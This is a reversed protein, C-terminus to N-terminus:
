GGEGTALDDQLTPTQWDRWQSLDGAGSLHAKIQGVTEGEHKLFKAINRVLPESYEPKGSACHQQNAVDSIYSVNEEAGLEKYVEAGALVATHAAPAGFQRIHPNDLVLLGRPAIMAVMEHTDVPLQAANLVFPKFDDALWNLGYFNNSTTETRLVDVIRYAPVGGTSTEQPITLAIREDFAGVTFAGKGNRSCGTVGLRGPDIIDGGAEQLVDIIRSAGWAWAMLLGAPHDSGYIDYFLGPNPKGRSAEPTGEKGLDYHNYFIIAVGQELIFSEGLTIGGFGGRAGLNIIAPFPRQGKSPLVVSASFHISKGQHEVDVSVASETVSGTVEDPRPPKEGYIYKEAQKHLEQRRCRWESRRTLRTGDLKTFPDPLKDIKPLLGPAPLEPADCGVGTNEVTAAYAYAPQEPEPEGDTDPDTGTDADAGGAGGGGSGAPGAAGGGVQDVDPTHSTGGGTGAADGVPGPVPETACAILMSLGALLCADTRM